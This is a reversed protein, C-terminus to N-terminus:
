EEIRVWKELEVHKGDLKVLKNTSDIVVRIGAAEEDSARIWQKRYVEDGIIKLKIGFATIFKPEPVPTVVQPIHCTEIVPTTNVTVAPSPQFAAPTKAAESLGGADQTALEQHLIRIKQDCTAYLAHLTAPSDALIGYQRSILPRDADDKDMIEIDFKFKPATSIPVSEITPTPLTIPTTLDSPKNKMSKKSFMNKLFTIM